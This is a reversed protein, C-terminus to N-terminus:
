RGRVHEFRRAQRCHALNGADPESGGAARGHFDEPEPPRGLSDGLACAFRSRWDAPASVVGYSGDADAYHTVGRTGPQISEAQYAALGSAQAPATALLAALALRSHM